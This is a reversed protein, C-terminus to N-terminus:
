PAPDVEHSSFGNTACAEQVFRIHAEDPEVAILRVDLGVRRAATGTNNLLVGVAASNLSLLRTARWISQACRQVGSLWILMTTQLSPSAKSRDRWEATLITPSFSPTLEYEWSTPLIAWRLTCTQIRMAGCLKRLTSHPTTTSIPAQRRFVRARLWDRLYNIGSTACPM